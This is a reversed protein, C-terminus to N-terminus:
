YTKIWGPFDAHVSVEKSQTDRIDIGSVLKKKLFYKWRKSIKSIIYM